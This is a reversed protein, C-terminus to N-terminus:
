KNRVKYIYIDKYFWSEGDLLSDHDFLHRTEGILIKCNPSRISNLVFINIKLTQALYILYDYEERYYGVVHQCLKHSENWNQERFQVIQAM